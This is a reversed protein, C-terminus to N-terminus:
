NWWDPVIRVIIELISDRIRIILSGANVSPIRVIVKVMVVLLVTM